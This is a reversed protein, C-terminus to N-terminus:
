YTFFILIKGLYFQIVSRAEKRKKKGYFPCWFYSNWNTVIWVEIKFHLQRARAIDVCSKSTGVPKLEGYTWSTKERESERSIQASYVTKIDWLATDNHISIKCVFCQYCRRFFGPEQVVYLQDLYVGELAKYDQDWFINPLPSVNLKKWFKRQLYLQRVFTM